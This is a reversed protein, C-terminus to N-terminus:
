EYQKEKRKHLNSFKNSAIDKSIKGGIKLQEAEDGGRHQDDLRDNMLISIPKVEGGKKGQYEKISRGEFLKSHMWM